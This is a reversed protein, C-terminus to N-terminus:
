TQHKFYLSPLGRGRGRGRLGRGRGRGRGRLGRDEGRSMHARVGLPM